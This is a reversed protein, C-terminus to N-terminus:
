EVQDVLLVVPDMVQAVVVALLNVVFQLEEILKIQKIFLNLHQDL